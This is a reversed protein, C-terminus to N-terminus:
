GLKLYFDPYWIELFADRKLEFQCSAVLIERAIKLSDNCEPSLRWFSFELLGIFSYVDMSVLYHM